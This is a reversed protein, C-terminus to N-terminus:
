YKVGNKKEIPIMTKKNYRWKKKKLAMKEETRHTAMDHCCSAVTRPADAGRKKTGHAERCGGYGEGWLAGIDGRRRDRKSGEEFGGCAVCFWHRVSFECLKSFILGMSLLAGM